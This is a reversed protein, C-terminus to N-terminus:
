GSGVGLLAEGPLACRGGPQVFRVLRRKLEAAYQELEAESM